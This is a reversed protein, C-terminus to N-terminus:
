AIEIEGRKPHLVGYIVTSIMVSNFSCISVTSSITAATTDLTQFIACINALTLHNRVQM